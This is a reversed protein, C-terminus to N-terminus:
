CFAPLREVINVAKECPSSIISLAAALCHCNQGDCTEIFLGCCGKGLRVGCSLVAVVCILEEIVFKRQVIWMVNCSM